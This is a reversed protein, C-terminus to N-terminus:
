QSSCMLGKQDVSIIIIKILKAFFKQLKLYLKATEANIGIIKQSLLSSQEPQVLEQKHRDGAITRKYRFITELHYKSCVTTTIGDVTDYLFPSPNARPTYRFNFKSAGGAELISM